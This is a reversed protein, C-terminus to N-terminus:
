VNSIYRSDVWEFKFDSGNSNSSIPTGYVINGNADVLEEIIFLNFSEYLGVSVEPLFVRGSWREDTSNYNLNLENEVGNFFRLKSYRAM